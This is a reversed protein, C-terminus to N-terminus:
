PTWFLRPEQTTNACFRLIFRANRFTARCKHRGQRESLHRTVLILM